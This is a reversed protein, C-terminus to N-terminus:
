GTPIPLGFLYLMLGLTLNRCLTIPYQLFSLMGTMILVLLILMSFKAIKEYERTLKVSLFSEVVKSGDLPPLPLLNFIGLAYNVSVSVFSMNILPEFLYFTPSMWKQLCCFVAASVIALLFNMGPGALSVFFLGPRYKRFRKPDIPVPRAWGILLPIGTLMNIVPFLLTGVPDIHPIPNLTLRGADKATSDGWLQAIRGHAYEHFVVAMIFPVLQVTLMQLRDQFSGM